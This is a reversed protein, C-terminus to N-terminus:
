LSDCMLLLNKRLFIDQLVKSHSSRKGGRPDSTSCHGCMESRRQGRKERNVCM